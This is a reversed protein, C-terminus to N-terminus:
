CRGESLSSNRPPPVLTESRHGPVDSVEPWGAREHHKIVRAAGGLVLAVVVAVSTWGILLWVWWAM